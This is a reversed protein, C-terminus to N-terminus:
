EGQSAAAPHPPHNEASAPGAVAADIDRAEDLTLFNELDHIVLVGDALKAIGAVHRLDSVVQAASEVDEDAVSVLDLM